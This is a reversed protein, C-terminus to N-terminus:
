AHAYPQDAALQPTQRRARAKRRRSRRPAPGPRRGAARGARGKRLRALIDDIRGEALAMREDACGYYVLIRGDGAEALGCTFVVNGFFGDTEYPEAPSLIPEASRALVR